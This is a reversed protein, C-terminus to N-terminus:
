FFIIHATSQDIRVAAVFRRVGAGGEQFHVRVSGFGSGIDRLDNCMLAWVLSEDDGSTM